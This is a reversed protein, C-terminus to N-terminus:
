YSRLLSNSNKRKCICFVSMATMISAITCDWNRDRPCIQLDLITWSHQLFTRSSEIFSIALKLGLSPQFFASQRIKWSSFLASYITQTQTSLIPGFQLVLRLNIPTVFFVITLFWWWFMKSIQDFLFQSPFASQMFDAQFLLNKVSM